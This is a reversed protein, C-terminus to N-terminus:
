RAKKAKRAKEILESQKYLTDRADTLTSLLGEIKRLSAQRAAPTGMFFEINIIRHCDAIIVM